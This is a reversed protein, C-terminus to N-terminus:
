LLEVVFGWVFAHMGIAFIIPILYWFAEPLGGLAAPLFIFLAWALIILFLGPFVLEKKTYERWERM